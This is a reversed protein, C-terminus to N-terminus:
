FCFSLSFSTYFSFLRCLSSLCAPIEVDSTQSICRSWLWMSDWWHCNQSLCLITEWTVTGTMIEHLKFTAMSKHKWERVFCVLTVGLWVCFCCLIVWLYSSPKDSFTSKSQELAPNLRSGLPQTQASLGALPCSPQGCLHQGWCLPGVQPPLGSTRPIPYIEADKLLIVKVRPWTVAFKSEM